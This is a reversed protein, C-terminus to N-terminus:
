SPDMKVREAQAEDEKTVRWAHIDQKKFLKEKQKLLQKYQADFKKQAERQLTYAERLANSEERHFKFWSNLQTNIV